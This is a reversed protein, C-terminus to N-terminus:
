PEGRNEWPWRPRGGKEGRGEVALVAIATLGALVAAAVIFPSASYGFPFFLLQLLDATIATYVIGGVFLMTIYVAATAGVFSIGPGQRATQVRVLLLGLVVAGAVVMVPGLLPGAQAQSIVDVDLILSLLGFTAVVAAIWAIVGFVAIIRPDPTRAPAPESM